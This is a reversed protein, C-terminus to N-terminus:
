GLWQKVWPGRTMLRDDLAGFLELVKRRYGAGLREDIESGALNVLEAPDEQLDYFEDVATPNWIYKYREDRIMRMDYLGFQQGHFSSFAVPWPDIAPKGQLQPLFSKGQFTEPIPVGCAELLTPGLDLCNSIFNDCTSDEAVHGPWRVLLPVHVEEEYMVYHKDMMRHSGAADGHDATYIVMTEDAQGTQELADLVRGIADDVQSIICFYLAVYVSWQDWTWEDICWNKLQQKQIFPKNEFTEQFNPWPEIMDPTYMSAFPEAPICPLHPESLDFRVHWPTGKTDRNAAFREITSSARAALAHTPSESLPAGNVYGTHPWVPNEPMEYRQVREHRGGGAAEYLDYGFATPDHDPSVHWKGLHALQYGSAKLQPPWTVVDPSLGSIKQCDHNWLGGHVQPMVGSLQTQRAPCCLPSPTFANTFSMGQSRLRDLHPTKVLPHGTFGLCDYRQQDVHIILINPMTM